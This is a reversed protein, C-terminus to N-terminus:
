ENEDEEEPQPGQGLLHIMEPDMKMFYAILMMNSSVVPDGMNDDYWKPGFKMLESLLAAKLQKIISMRVEEQETLKM